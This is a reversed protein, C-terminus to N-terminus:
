KRLGGTYRIGYGTGYDGGPSKREKKEYGVM